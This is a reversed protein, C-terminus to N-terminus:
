YGRRRDVVNVLGEGREFRGLNLELVAFCRETYAASMGSIHPTIIVNDM